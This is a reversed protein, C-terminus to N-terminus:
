TIDVAFDGLTLKEKTVYAALLAATKLQTKGFAFRTAPSLIGSVSGIVEGSVGFPTGSNGTTITGLKAANVTQAAILTSAFTTRSVVSNIRAAATYDTTDTPLTGNQATAQTVGAYIRSNTFSGASISNINGAAFVVSDTMAGTVKLSGIQTYKKGYAADTQIVASSMSGNVTLSNIAAVQITSSLTGTVALNQIIGGGDISWASTPSTVAARFLSGDLNWTGSPNAVKAYYLDYGGNTLSLGEAFSGPVVLDSIIKAVIVHSGSDTNLWQNGIISIIGAATVGSNTVTPIQIVTGGPRSALTVQAGDLAAAKITAVGGGLGGGIDITGNFTTTPATIYYLGTTDSVSGITVAGPSTISLADLHHGTTTMAISTITAGAGTATIHGGATVPTVQYDSFTIVATAGPTSIKVVTGNPQTYTLYQATKTGITVQVPGSVVDFNVTGTTSVNGATDAVTYTLSDTGTFTGTPTYTIQGTSTNVTATGNAPQTVITFSAANLAASSDTDNALGYVTGVTGDPIPASTVPALVPGTTTSTSGPVTVNFASTASTGDVNTATVTITATGTQGSAYSFSLSSGNVTPTVLAPDSSVATYSTGAFATVENIYVLNSPTIQAGASVQAATVGLVPVDTFTGTDIAVTPLAAITNIVPFSSGNGGLVHGFTTYGGDNSTNDLDTNDATNFYFQSTGTDPGAGTKALALTGVVNGLQETAVENTVPANTTIDTIGTSSSYTFGGSQIISAPDTPSGASGNNNLDVNRHFFTGNYAGSNAYSLFNSVTLPTYSDTLAVDFTGESTNFVAVTGPINPDSFNGALNITSSAPSSLNALIPTIASSVVEQSALGTVTGSMLVRRELSQIMQSVVRRRRSRTAVM